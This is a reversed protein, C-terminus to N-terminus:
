ILDKKNKYIKFLEYYDDNKSYQPNEKIIKDILRFDVGNFWKSDEDVKERDLKKLLTLQTNIKQNREAIGKEIFQLLVLEDNLEVKQLSKRLNNIEYTSNHLKNSLLINAISIAIHFKKYDM